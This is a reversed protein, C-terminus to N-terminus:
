IWSPRDMWPIQPDVTADQKLLRDNLELWRRPIACKVMDSSINKVLLLSKSITQNLRPSCPFKASSMSVCAECFIFWTYVSCNSAQLMFSNVYSQGFHEFKSSCWLCSHIEKFQMTRAWGCNCRKWWSIKQPQLYQKLQVELLNSWHWIKWHRVIVWVHIIWPDV